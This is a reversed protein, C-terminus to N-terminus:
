RLMDWVFVLCICHAICSVDKICMGFLRMDGKTLTDFTEKSDFAVYAYTDSHIIQKMQTKKKIKKNLITAHQCPQSAEFRDPHFIQLFSVGGGARNFANNLEENTILPPLSDILVKNESSAFRNVNVCLHM